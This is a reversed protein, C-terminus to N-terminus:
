GYVMFPHCSRKGSVGSPFTVGALKIRRIRTLDPLRDLVLAPPFAEEFEDYFYPEERIRAKMKLVKLRPMSHDFIAALENEEAQVHLYECRHLHPLLQNLHVNTPDSATISLSANGSRRLKTHLILSSWPDISTWLSQTQFVIDRWRLCVQCLQQLVEDPINHGHDLILVLFLIQALVEVPLKHIPTGGETISSTSMSPRSPSPSSPPVLLRAQMLRRSEPM